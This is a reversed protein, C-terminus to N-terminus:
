DDAQEAAARELNLALLKALIEEDSLAPDWGCAAFVAEDLRRHALDLWTPRENYLNTLTRVKLKKACDADKPVLRPYRVLGIKTPLRATGPGRPAEERPLSAGGVFVAEERPLSAGGVPVASPPQAVYKKGTTLLCDLNQRLEAWERRLPQMVVPEVLTVIDERSTYHAGLQSRKSPDLGREFLTGFISPQIASWDLKAAAHVAEIEDLTLELVLGTAPQPQLRATGPGRPAEERPLSAGGVPVASPPQAVFLDGNFHPIREMGFDGGHAMADFLQALMRTFRAPDDRTKNVIRSFLGDPLLGVDEAFLCFVIRDLFRAVAHPELGRDRLSQAVEAIHRAADETVSEDTVGPKLRDPDHFLARLTALNQEEGMAELAIERVTHPTNNFHTHVVTRDM